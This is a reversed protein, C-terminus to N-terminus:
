LLNFYSNSAFTVAALRPSRGLGQFDDMSDSIATAISSDLRTGDM